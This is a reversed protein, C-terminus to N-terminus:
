ILRNLIQHPLILIFCRCIFQNSEVTTWAKGSLVCNWCQWVVRLVVQQHLITWKKLVICHITYVSIRSKWCALNFVKLDTSIELVEKNEPETKVTKCYDIHRSWSQLHRLRVHKASDTVSIEHYWKLPLKSVCVTTEPQDWCLHDICRLM